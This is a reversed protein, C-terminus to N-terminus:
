SHAPGDSGRSADEGYTDGRLHRWERANQALIQRLDQLLRDVEDKTVSAGDSGAMLYNLRRHVDELNWILVTRSIYLGRYNYFADVASFVTIMAGLVLATNSFFVGVRQSVQLGLLVTIAGSFAVTAFRLWFAIRKEKHRKKETEEIRKAIEEVLYRVKADIEAM